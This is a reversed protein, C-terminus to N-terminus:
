RSKAKKNIEYKERNVSELVLNSGSVETGAWKQKVGVTHGKETAYFTGNKIGLRIGSDIVEKGFAARLDDFWTAVLPMKDRM